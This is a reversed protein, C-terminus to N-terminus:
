KFHMGYGMTSLLPWFALIVVFRIVHLVAYNAFVLGLDAWGVLTNETWIKIGLIIGALMFICTEAVFGVYGWVSHLSHESAASISTKGSRSMYLGLAVLALIGSVHVGESEAVYFIIYSYVFTTNVELVYDNWLRNLTFVMIYGGLLGVIPGGVAMRLLLILIEGFTKEKGEVFELLILFLVMATGDNFLSEGEILTALKKSAGLTKLLSVVAVPDTASAISGFLLAATFPFKNAGDENYGLVYYMALGTLYTSVLVMPGAMM